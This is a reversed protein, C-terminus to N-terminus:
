FPAPCVVEIRAGTVPHDFAIREAHLHLRGGPRGYLRDGRIPAGLGLPHACHVRLQHTRGTQPFLAVRDAGLRRWRTIAERGDPHHMQRPRDLPDARLALEIMGAEGAVTGDLVAVYRKHVSRQAFQRQLAICHAESKALVLAGSTDLDLRHAARVDTRGLRSTVTPQRRRGPVSLLGAPKHVVWVADDEYLTEPVPPAPDEFRPAPEVPLGQLMFPLIVACRGRCAPYYHGQWRGGGPPPPGWWFEALAIPRLDQRLAAALLKPAACDGAGTPPVHPAFIEALSREEGAANPFRYTAHLAAMLGRSRAARAQVAVRLAETAQDLAAQPEIRAAVQESRLTRLRATDHRSEQDLPAAPAGAARAARRMARREALEAKLTGRAATQAQQLLTLRAEAARREATLRDIHESEAALAAQGAPWFDVQADRAFVPPVFDPVWWDGWMGSFGWLQGLRGAADKVVLVGFMKGEDLPPLRAQLGEAAARAIAHPEGFPTPFVTPPCLDTVFPHM